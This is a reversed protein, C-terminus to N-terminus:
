VYEGQRVEVTRNVEVTRHIGMGMGIEEAIGPLPPRETLQEQSIREWRDMEESPHQSHVTTVTVALKDPRFRRQAESDLSGLPFRRSGTGPTYNDDQTSRPFFRRLLPRLTALSGASIGLGTEINSWIAINVTAYLFDDLEAFTRVWPIRIIVAASASSQNSISKLCLSPFSVHM